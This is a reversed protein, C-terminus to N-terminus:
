WTKEGASQRIIEGNGNVQLTGVDRALALEAIKLEVRAATLGNRATLLDKRADLLDRMELRGAQLFLTTSAVRRLALDVSKQQILITERSAAVERLRNRVDLKVQDESEEAYRLAQDLDLQAARFLSAEQRREFPWDFSLLAAYDGREPRLKARPSSASALTRHGGFSGSLELDIRPLFEDRAIRLKRARDHVEGYAQRLDLRSALAKVLLAHDDPEGGRVGSGDPEVFLRDLDQGAEGGPIEERALLALDDGALEVKCDPPLGIKMKFSDLLRGYSQSAGLWDNRARLVDQQAQDVQIEPLRGADALRRAHRAAVQLKLFNERSNRIRDLQQLVNFYAQAIDVVFLRKYREFDYLAYVMNREAQTLDERVIDSGAGGLLPIRISTDAFVGLSSQRGSSLLKVLDIGIQATLEMGAEFKRTWTTSGTGTIGDVAVGSSLDSSLLTSMLGRFGHRFEEHNLDLDLAVRYVKEKNTQYDRSNAAGVSLSRSLTLQLPHSPLNGPPQRVELTYTTPEGVIAMPLQQDAFIIARLSAEPPVLSYGSGSLGAIGQARDIYTRARQDARDIETQRNACGALGGLGIVLLIITVFGLHGKVNGDM